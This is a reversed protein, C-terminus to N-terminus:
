NAGLRNLYKMRREYLFESWNVWGARLKENKGSLIKLIEARTRKLPRGADVEYIRARKNNKLALQTAYDLAEALANERIKEAPYGRAKLRRGLIEPHARTIIIFDCALPFECLLHGELILGIKRARAGRIVRGLERRLESMKVIKTGFKDKGKWLKKENVIDNATILQCKLKRALAAALASKGTGPVGTLIIIM